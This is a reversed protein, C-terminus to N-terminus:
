TCLAPRQHVTIFPKWIHSQRLKDVNLSHRIKHVRQIQLPNWRFRPSLTMASSPVLYNWKKMGYDGHLPLYVILYIANQIEFRSSFSVRYMTVERIRLLDRMGHLQHFSKILASCLGSVFDFNVQIQKRKGTTVACLRFYQTPIQRFIFIRRIEQGTSDNIKQTCAECEPADINEIAFSSVNYVTQKPAFITNMSSAWHTRRRNRFIKFSTREKWVSLKAPFFVAQVMTSFIQRRQSQKHIRIVTTM